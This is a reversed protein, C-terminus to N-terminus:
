QMCGLFGSRPGGVQTYNQQGAHDLLGPQTQNGPSPHLGTMRAKDEPGPHPGSATHVQRLWEEGLGEPDQHTQPQCVAPSCAKPWSSLVPYWAPHPHLHPAPLVQLLEGRLPPDLRLHAHAPHETGSGCLGSHVPCLQVGELQTLQRHIATLHCGAPVAHWRGASGLVPLDGEAM